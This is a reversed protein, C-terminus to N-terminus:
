MINNLMWNEAYNLLYNCAARMYIEGSPNQPGIGHIQNSIPNSVNLTHCEIM